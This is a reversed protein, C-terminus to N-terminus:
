GGRSHHSQWRHPPFDVLGRRRGPDIAARPDGRRRGERDMRGGWAVLVLVWVLYTAVYATDSECDTVCPDPLLAGGLALSVFLLVPVPWSFMARRIVKAMM